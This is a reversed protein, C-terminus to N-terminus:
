VQRGSVQFKIEAMKWDEITDIDQVESQNLIVCGVRGKRLKKNKLLSSTKFFYFQGSDMYMKELDQSRASAFEPFAYELLNNNIKLARQVPYSYEVVPIVTNYKENRLKSFAEKLTEKKLLPATPYICCGYTFPKKLETEYKNLVELLVATTSAFDSANRESRRFPVKAGCNVAIQAIEDDDTSVMVEDFLKSNLAIEISYAIIPKGLFDRINKKPIRKSGGRAPIIALNKM